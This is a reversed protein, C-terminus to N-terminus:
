MRNMAAAEDAESLQHQNGDGGSSQLSGPDDLLEETFSKRAKNKISTNNAKILKELHILGLTAKLVGEDSQLAKELYTDGSEDVSTSAYFVENRMEDTLPIGYVSNVRKLYHNFSDIDQQRDRDATTKALEKATNDTVLQQAERETRSKRMIEATTAIMDSTRYGEIIKTIDDESAGPMTIKLEERILPEDSLGKTSQAYQMAYDKLTKGDKKAAIFDKVEKDELIKKVDSYEGIKAAMGNRMRNLIDGVAKRQDEPKIEGTVKELNMKMKFRDDLYHLITPYEGPPKAGIDIGAADALKKAEAAAAIAAADETGGEEAAKEAAIRAAKTADDEDGLNIGDGEAGGAGKGDKGAGEGGPNEQGNLFANLQDENEILDIGDGSYTNTEVGQVQQGEATETM